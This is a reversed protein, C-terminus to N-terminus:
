LLSHKEAIAALEQAAAKKDLRWLQYKIALKAFDDAAKQKLEDLEQKQDAIAKEIKILKKQESPTLAM